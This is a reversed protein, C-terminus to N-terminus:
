VCRSTYLLCDNGKVKTISDIDQQSTVIVWAKGMCEKGLEQRKYVDLHTYSVPMKHLYDIRLNGITDPTYRHLYVLAKFGNQLELVANKVSKRNALKKNDHFYDSDEQEWITEFYELLIHILSLPFAAPTTWRM